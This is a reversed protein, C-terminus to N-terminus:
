KMKVLKSYSNNNHTDTIVFICYYDYEDDFTELSFGYENVKTEWGTIVGDSKLNGEEDYPGVYNGEEDLISYGSVISFAISDYEKLDVMTSNLLNDSTNNVISAIDINKTKKDYTLTMSGVDQKWDDHSGNFNQLVVTTEYKIYKSTNEIENSVLTFGDSPNNKSYVRLQRDRINAKLTNGDLVAQGNSYIPKYYGDKNDRFVYYKAKAFSAVQEDDLELSFDTQLEGDKEVSDVNIKNSTYVFRSYESDKIRSFNNIFRRYTDLENIDNYVNMFFQKVFSEGNYPFYISIGRSQQDTAWNYVVTESINKLVNDAKKPALYRLENVLNYIDVMDYSLDDSGYQYINARVKSITNFNDISDIEGFFENISKILKDVSKLNIIAYTSYIADSQGFPYRSKIDAIQKKYSELYKRGIEETKDKSEINNIFSLVNTFSSGWTVEESAVLYNAYDDFISAVEITSNLCTRFIVLELKNKSNFPSNDLGEKLEQLSLNDDEYLEDYESGHIAGGHNWFILEYKSSKYNDYVYNLFSSLTASNGMNQLSQTKVKEYGNEKLEYISTESKDIYNNYWNKSGGAILVVKVNPTYKISELDATGIQSESELNSGVMYIMITRTKDKTFILTLVIGIIIIGIIIFFVPKYNRKKRDSQISQVELTTTQNNTVQQLNQVGVQVSNQVPNLQGNNQYNDNGQDM